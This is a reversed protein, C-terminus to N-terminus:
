FSVEIPIKMMKSDGVNSIINLATIHSNMFLAVRHHIDAAISESEAKGDVVDCFYLIFVAVATVFLLKM